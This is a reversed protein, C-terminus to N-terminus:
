GVSPSSAGDKKERTDVVVVTRLLADHIAKAEKDKLSYLVDVYGMLFSIHHEKRTILTEPRPTDSSYWDVTLRAFTSPLVKRPIPNRIVVGVRADKPAMLGTTTVVDDKKVTRVRKYTM